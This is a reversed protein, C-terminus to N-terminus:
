EMARELDDGASEVNALADELAGISDAAKEGKEGDRFAEPMADLADQEEQTLEELRSRIGDLEERLAKLKKRRQSNM